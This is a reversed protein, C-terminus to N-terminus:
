RCILLKKTKKNNLDVLDTIVLLYIGNSLHSVDFLERKLQTSILQGQISFIEVKYNLQYSVDIRFFDKTPNPYILISSNSVDQEFTSLTSQIEFNHTNIDFYISNLASVQIRANTTSINPLIVMAFGNNATSELLSIPYTFGGDTSLRITVNQTNIPLTDTGNVDWTVMQSSGGPYIIGNTNQSTVVFPGADAVTIQIDDSNIGSANIMKGNYLIQHNDNVTLRIDMIRAQSPLQEQNNFNNNAVIDSIKPFTRSSITTPLLRQFIAGHLDDAVPITQAIGRNMNDWVYTLNDNADADSAIGTLTFPTNIPIVVDAGAYVSPINNGTPIKNGTTFIDNLLFNALQHYSIAHAHGQANGGQITWAGNEPEYNSNDSHNITHSQSLQHGIEHRTVPIDLGGSLGSKLGGACGGGFPSGAIVHSIDYNESGIINDIVSAQQSLIINANTCGGSGAPLTGWPDTAANLFILQDNNPIIEFRVCYERGYIDNIEEIWQDLLAATATKGGNQSTFEGTTSVALRLVRLNDGRKFNTGLFSSPCYPLKATNVNEPYFNYLKPSGNINADSDYIGDKTFEFGFLNAVQNMPYLNLANPWSWGLGAILISGGNAVFNDLATLEEALYPQSGNWDNGLILVDTNALSASTINGSLTNFTYNDAILTNKLTSINNNNVWGEKLTVRKSGPNLWGIANTLFTLNDYSNISNNSLLGEHGIAIVKGNQYQTAVSYNYKPINCSSSSVIPTVNQNIPLLHGPLADPIFLTDVNTFIDSLNQSFANSSILVLLSILIRINM